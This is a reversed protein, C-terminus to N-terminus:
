QEAAPSCLGDYRTGDGDWSVCGANCNGSPGGSFQCAGAGSCNCYAPGAVAQALWLQTEGMDTFLKGLENNTFLERAQELVLAAKRAFAAQEPADQKLTGIEAGLSVAQALVQAQEATLHPHAATFNVLAENWLEAREAPTSAQEIKCTRAAFATNPLIAVVVIVALAIVLFRSRNM